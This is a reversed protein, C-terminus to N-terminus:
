NITQWGGSRDSSPASPAAPTGPQPNDGGIGQWQNIPAPGPTPVPSRPPASASPATGPVPPQWNSNELLGIVADVEMSMTEQWKTYAQSFKLAGDPDVGVLRYVSPPCKGKLLSLAVGPVVRKKIQAIFAEKGIEKGLTLLGGRVDGRAMTCIVSMAKEVRDFGQGFGPIWTSWMMWALQFGTQPELMCTASTYWAEPDEKALVYISRELVRPEITGSSSLFHGGSAAIADGGAYIMEGMNVYAWYAKIFQGDRLHTIGPLVDGRVELAPESRRRIAAPVTLYPRGTKSLAISLNRGSAMWDDTGATATGATSGGGVGDALPAGKDDQNLWVSQVNVIPTTIPAGCDKIKEVYAALDLNPQFRSKVYARWYHHPGGEEPDQVAAMRQDLTLGLGVELTAATESRDEIDTFIVKVKEPAVLAQNPKYTDNKVRLFLLARLDGKADTTFQAPLDNAYAVEVRQMPLAGMKFDVVTDELNISNAITVKIKANPRGSYRFVARAGDAGAILGTEAFGGGASPCAAVEAPSCGAPLKGDPGPKCLAGTATWTGKVAAESTKGTYSGAFTAKPSRSTPAQTLKGTLSLGVKEDGIAAKGGGVVLSRDGYRPNVFTQRISFSVSADAGKPEPLALNFSAGPQAVKYQDGGRTCPKPTSFTKTEGGASLIVDTQFWFSGFQSNCVAEYAASTGSLTVPGTAGKVQYTRSTTFGERDAYGGAAIGSVSYTLQLRNFPQAPFTGSVGGGAPSPKAELIGGVTASFSVDAGAGIAGELKGEFARGDITGRAEGSLRGAADAKFKMSGSFNGSFSGEYDGAFLGREEASAPQMALGVAAAVAAIALRSLTTM